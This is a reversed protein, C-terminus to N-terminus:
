WKQGRGFNKEVGYFEVGCFIFSDNRFKRIRFKRVILLYRNAVNQSTRIVDYKQWDQRTIVGGFKMKVYFDANIENEM